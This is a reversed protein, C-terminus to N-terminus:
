SKSGSTETSGSIVPIEPVVPKSYEIKHEINLKTLLSSYIPHAEPKLKPFADSLKKVLAAHKIAPLLESPMDPIGSIPYLVNVIYLLMSLEEDNLLSLQEISM